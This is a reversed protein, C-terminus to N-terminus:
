WFKVDYEEGSACGYQCVPSGNCAQLCTFLQACTKDLLCNALSTSCNIALCVSFELM